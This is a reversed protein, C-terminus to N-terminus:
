QEYYGSREREAEQAWFEAEDRNRQAAAEELATFRRIQEPSRTLGHADYCKPDGVAGCTPCEPCICDDVVTACVYCIGDDDDGPVSSCGPPYSSAM